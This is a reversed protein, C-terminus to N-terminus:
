ESVYKRDPFELKNWEPSKLNPMQLQNRIVSTKSAMTTTSERKPSGWVSLKSGTVIRLCIEPSERGPPVGGERYHLLFNIGMSEKYLVTLCDDFSELIDVEGTENSQIKKGDLEMSIDSVHLTHHEADSHAPVTTKMFYILCSSNDFRNREHYQITKNDSHLRLEVHSTSIDDWVSHDNAVSWVLVWDGFIKHLDKTLLRKKLGACEDPVLKKHCIETVGDYSYEREHSFGLCEAQKKLGDRASRQYNMDWHSGDKKFHLLMYECPTVRYTMTLCDDCTEYMEVELMGDNRIEAGNAEVRMETTQLTFHESDSDAPVPTKLFNAICDGSKLHSAGYHDITKNDPLLRMVVFSTKVEDLMTTNKAASWVLVWDGFIKNVHKTPLRKTLGACEEPTPAAHSGIVLVASLLTVLKLGSM